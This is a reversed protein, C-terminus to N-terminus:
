VDLNTLGMIFTEGYEPRYHSRLRHLSPRPRLFDPRVEYHSYVEIGDTNPWVHVHYQCQNPEWEDVIKRDLDPHETPVYRYSGHDVATHPAPHYKAAALPNARYGEDKLWAITEALPEQRVAVLERPRLQAATYLGTAKRLPGDIAALLHNWRRQAPM